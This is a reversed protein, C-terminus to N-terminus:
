VVTGGEQPTGEPATPADAPVTQGLSTTRVSRTPSPGGFAHDSTAHLAIAIVPAAIGLATARRVLDRRSIRGDIRAQILGNLETPEVGDRWCERDPRPTLDIM